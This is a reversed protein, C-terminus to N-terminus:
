SKEMDLDIERNLKATIDSLVEVSEAPDLEALGELEVEIEDLRDDIPEPLDAQPADPRTDARDQNM